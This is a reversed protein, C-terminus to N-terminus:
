RLDGSFSKSASSNEVCSRTFIPNSNANMMRNYVILDYTESNTISKM